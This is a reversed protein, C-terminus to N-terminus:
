QLHLYANHEPRFVRMACAGIGNGGFCHPRVLISYSTNSWAHVGINLACGEGFESNPACHEKLAAAQITLTDTQTHTDPQQAMHLEVPERGRHM